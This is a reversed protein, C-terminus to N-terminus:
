KWRDAEVKARGFDVDCKGAKKGAYRANKIDYVVLKEKKMKELVLYIFMLVDDLNVGQEESLREYRELLHLLDVLFKSDFKGTKSMDAIKERLVLRMMSIEKELRRVEAGHKESRVRISAGINAIADWPVSGVDEVAGPPLMSRYRNLRQRMIKEQDTEVIEIDEVVEVSSPAQRMRGSARKRAM